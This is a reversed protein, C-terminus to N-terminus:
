EVTVGLGLRFNSTRFNLHTSLAFAMPSGCIRKEFVSGVNTNSDVMARFVVGKDHLRVKTAFTGISERLRFKTNLEIGCEVQHSAQQYCSLLLNNMSVVACWTSRPARYRAIISPQYEIDKLESVNEKLKELGKLVALELGIDLSSSVSQLYQLLLCGSKKFVDSNALVASLTFSDALYHTELQNTVFTNKVIQGTCKFKCRSGFIHYFTANMNGDVDTDGFIVPAGTRERIIKNGVYMAGFRYNGPTISSLYISHHIKFHSSLGRHINVKLGDFCVPFVSTCKSNVELLTGPNTEEKQRYEKTSKM